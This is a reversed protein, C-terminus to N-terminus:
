STEEPSLKSWIYIGIGLIFLGAASLMAMKFMDIEGDRRCIFYAILVPVSALFNVIKVESKNKSKEKDM